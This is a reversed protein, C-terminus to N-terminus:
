EDDEEDSPSPSHSDVDNSLSSKRPKLDKDGKWWKHGEELVKPWEERFRGRWDECPLSHLWTSLSFRPAETNKVDELLWNLMAHINLGRRLSARQLDNYTIPRRSFYTIWYDAMYLRGTDLWGPMDPYVEIPTRWSIPDYPDYYASQLHDLIVPSWLEWQKKDKLFPPSPIDAHITTAMPPRQTETTPFDILEEGQELGLAANPLTKVPSAYPIEGRHYAYWRELFTQADLPHLRHRPRAPCDETPDSHGYYGFFM